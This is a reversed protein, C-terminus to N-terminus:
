WSKGEAKTVANEICPKLAPFLRNFSEAQKKDLCHLVGKLQKLLEDRQETLTYHNNVAKLIFAANQQRENEAVSPYDDYIICGGVGATLMEGAGIRYARGSSTKVMECLWPLPTHKVENM